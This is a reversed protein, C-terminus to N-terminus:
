WFCARILNSMEIIGCKELRLRFVLFDLCRVFVEDFTRLGDYGWRLWLKGM